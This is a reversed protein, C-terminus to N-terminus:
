VTEGPIFKPIIRIAKSELTGTEALQRAALSVRRAFQSPHSTYRTLAPSTSELYPDDDRSIVAVDQPIRKGRRMLHTMVTLSHMARAVLFATPPNATRMVADLLTCLHATSGDHRLVTLSAEPTTELAARLGQESDLDGGQANQPLVLALRRHGKRLLVGGAHRCAARHDADMSPLSIDPACSGVVLCPLQHRIMWQQMPERSGFILWAFAPHQRVLKEMARAPKSSYCARNVHFEVSCDAKTLLERLTGMMLAMPQPLAGLPNACLIAIVRKQAGAAQPTRKAKIRRRSRQAVELWGQRQMEELAARLTRRSIQLRECLEREGPLCEKWHGSRIGDRLSQVTQAVLSWRKPLAPTPPTKVKMQNRLTVLTKDKAIVAPLRLITCTRNWGNLGDPLRLPQGRKGHLSSCVTM